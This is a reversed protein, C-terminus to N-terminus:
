NKDKLYQKFRVSFGNNNENIVIEDNNYAELLKEKSWLWRSGKKPSPLKGDHEFTYMVNAREGKSSTALPQTIYGGRVDFKKDKKSYEEIQEPSLKAELNEIRNKSYVLLYEHLKAFGKTGCGAGYRKKWVLSELYNDSGIIEDCVRKLNFVENEDISIFILGDSTLLNRSIKLRPYIMSLWDSHYRTSTAPNDKLGVLRKGEIDIM